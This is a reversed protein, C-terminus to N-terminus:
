AVSGRKTVAPISRNEPCSQRHFCVATALEPMGFRKAMEGTRAWAQGVFRKVFAVLVAQFAATAAADDFGEAAEASLLPRVDAMFTTNALKAFMRQEAQARTIAQGAAPLYQQLLAVARVSDLDEFVAALLARLKTALIEENSFTAIEARGSFWPNTVEFPIVRPPDYATIERTHVEV